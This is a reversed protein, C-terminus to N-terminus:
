RAIAITVSGYVKKRFILEKNKSLALACPECVGSLGIRKAKSNSPFDTKNIIEKDLFVIRKDLEKAAEILGIEKEKIKASAVLDVQKLDMGAEKIAKNIASIVEEKKIGKRTGIGLVTSIGRVETATTIAPIMGLGKLKKAIDNAGHHGGIIPIAFTGKEDVAIVAPDEWKNKILSAIKRVVIGVAMIAVIADYNYNFAKEFVSREYLLIDGGIHEKIRNAIGLNREFTV